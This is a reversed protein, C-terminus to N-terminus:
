ASSSNALNSAVQGKKELNKYRQGYWDSRFHTMTDLISLFQRSGSSPISRSLSLGYLLSFFLKFCDMLHTINALCATSAIINTIVLDQWLWNEAHRNKLSLTCPLVKLDLLDYSIIYHFTAMEVFVLRERCCCCFVTLVANYIVNSPISSSNIYLISM